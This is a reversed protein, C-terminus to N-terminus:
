NIYIEITRRRRGLYGFILALLGFLLFIPANLTTAVGWKWVLPHTARSVMAKAAGLSEKAFEGWLRAITMPEFGHTAGTQLHTLDTVLAIVAVLLFVSAIFRLVAM